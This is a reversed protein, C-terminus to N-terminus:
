QDYVQFYTHLKIVKQIRFFIYFDEMLGVIVARLLDKGHLMSIILVWLFLCFIDLLLCFAHVNYLYNALLAWNNPRSSCSFTKLPIMVTCLPRYSYQFLWCHLTLLIFRLDLLWLLFLLPLSLFSKPYHTHTCTNTILAGFLLGLQLTICEYGSVSNKAGASQIVALM